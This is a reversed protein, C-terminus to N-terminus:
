VEVPNEPGVVLFSYDDNLHFPGKMLWLVRKGKSSSIAPGFDHGDPHTWVSGLGIIPIRKQLEPEAAGLTLLEEITGLHDGHKSAIQKYGELAKAFPYSHESSADYFLKHDFHFIKYSASYDCPVDTGSFVKEITRDVSDYKGAIIRAKIGDTAPVLLEGRAVIKLTIEM